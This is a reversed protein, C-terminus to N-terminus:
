CCSGWFRPMFPVLGLAALGANGWDKNRLAEYTDYISIADGIPTVNAADELDVMPKLGRIFPKGTFRDIEDSSNDYYDALQDETYKRGYRDKYLKGKYLQPQEPIIPKNNPPIENSDIQGGVNFKNIVKDNLSVKNKFKNPNAWGAFNLDTNSILESEQHGIGYQSSYWPASIEGKSGPQIEFNGQDFWKNRDKGLKYPRRVYATKGRGGYIFANEGPTIWIGQDPTRKHTAAYKMFDEQTINDGLIRKVNLIDNPEFGNPDVGRLYTNHRAITNRIQANTRRNSLITSRNAKPYGYRDAFEDLRNMLDYNSQAKSFNVGTNSPNTPNYIITKNDVFPTNLSRNGQFAKNFTDVVRKNKYVTSVNRITNTIGRIGSVIDFEPSVIELGEEIPRGNANRGISINLRQKPTLESWKKGGETPFRREIPEIIQPKYVPHDTPPVEGGDAYKYIPNENGEWTTTYMTGNKIQPYYGLKADEQLGILFTPHWPKKLIEGTESDRTPLHYSKDDENWEPEYGLEYARRLNYNSEDQLNSPLSNKWDLYTKGPNQERYQKLQQMRNRFAQRDM